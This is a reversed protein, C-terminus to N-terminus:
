KTTVPINMKINIWQGLGNRGCKPGAVGFLRFSKHSNILKNKREENKDYRNRVAIIGSQLVAVQM